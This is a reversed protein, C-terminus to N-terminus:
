EVVVADVIDNQFSLRRIIHQAADAGTQEFLARDDQKIFDAGARAGVVFAQDVLANLQREAARAM